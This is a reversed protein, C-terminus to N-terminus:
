SKWMASPMCRFEPPLLKRRMKRRCTCSRREPRRRWCRWPCYATSVACRDPSPSLMQMCVLIGLLIALDHMTGIKKVDAPALNVTIRRPPLLVSMATLAARIRERSERVSADPLGVIEFQPNGRSISVEVDVPFANLGFLGLSKIQTFM